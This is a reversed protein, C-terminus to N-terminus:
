VSGTIDAEFTTAQEDGVENMDGWAANYYFASGFTTSSQYHTGFNSFFYMYATENYTGELTYVGKLFEITPQPMAEINSTDVTM